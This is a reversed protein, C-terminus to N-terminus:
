RLQTWNARYGVSGTTAPNIGRVTGQGTATQTVLQPMGNASMVAPSGTGSVAIGNVVNGNADRTFLGTTQDAFFSQGTGGGSAPSIAMTFGSVTAADCTISNGVPLTTNVIFENYAFVPNYIIQEYSTTGGVTNSSLNLYWGLQTNTTPCDSSGQWCVLNTTVTRNGAGDTTASQSALRSIGSISANLALSQLPVSNLSNWNSMNWDWIGYIAQQGTAYTQNGNLTPLITQGTGFDIMVRPNGTNALEIAIVPVTTIPQGSATTFLPHGGATGGTFDTVKWNSATSSTVDFRWMNGKLDGGYIYDVIGDADLDAVTAQAIGNGSTSLGSDLYRFSIASTSQDVEMIFVGASNGSASAASNLGNGFIVGWNGDHLRRVQPAGMINGLYTGCSSAATTTCNNASSTSSGSILTSPNWEGIVVSTPTSESFNNDPDTIDLVYFATDAGATGGKANGGAGLGGVLWTHWAAGYLLDGFGITSDVYFNHAFNTNPFDGATTAAANITNVVASPMYAIVEAGDNNTSVYSGASNYAGARFGHLFGDNSGAYVVNTRTAKNTQFTAYSTNNEVMNDSVSVQDTWTGTYPFDPSSVWVPSSDVIDGLISWRQRYSPSTGANERTRGGRLYDLVTSDNGLAAQQATTLYTAPTTNGFSQSTDSPWEFAIGGGVGVGTSTLMKRATPLQRSRTVLTADCQGDPMGTSGTLVCSADWDAIPSISVIGTTSSVTLPQSTLNGWWGDANTVPNIQHYYSLYVKTTTRVQGSQHSNISASTASTESPVASFCTIEHINTSGGTSGGFGFYFNAPLTGNSSTINQQTIIPTYVGGNYSYSVSLLGGGTLVLKYNIPTALTRKTVNNWLPQSSYSLAYQAAKGSSNTIPAYDLIAPSTATTLTATTTGTCKSQVTPRTGNAATVAATQCVSNAFNTTNYYSVVSGSAGYTPSGSLLAWTWTGQSSSYGLTTYNLPITSGQDTTLSNWNQLLGTKCTHDVASAQNTSTMTSPYYQPYTTTLYPWAISGAGRLGIRNSVFTGTPTLTGTSDAGSATSDPQNLFNGFEDIGMILYGGIVGQVPTKNHSCTFAFSGGSNGFYVSSGYAASNTYAISPQTVGDNTVTYYSADLLFFSFGDAGNGGYAYDTFTVQLGTDSPFPTTSIIDTAENTAAHTLRLAGNGTSDPLSNNAGGLTGTLGSTNCYQISNATTTSSTGATLCPLSTTPHDAATGIAWGSVTNAGTFNEKITIAAGAHGAWLVLSSALLTSVWGARNCM